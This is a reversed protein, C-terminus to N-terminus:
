SAKLEKMKETLNWLAKNLKVDRDISKIKRTTVTRLNGSNDGKLGRIGGKMINEQVINFTNWLDNKNRDDYRRPTLLRETRFPIAEKEGYLALAASEAFIERESQSLEIAKMQQMNGAIKPANAIIEYSVEVIEDPNFDIHKVSIREFTDGVIMGNSCIFRFVGAMLQYAASRNHSNILVVEIAEGNLILDQRQFRIMHKQYGQNKANTVRCEQAKTPFWGETQLRKVVDFTPIFRYRESVYDIPSTAFVSPALTRLDNETLPRVQNM